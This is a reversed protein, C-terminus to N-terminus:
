LQRDHGPSKDWPSSRLGDTRFTPQAQRAQQRRRGRSVGASRDRRSPQHLLRRLFLVGREAIEDQTPEIRRWIAAAMAIIKM